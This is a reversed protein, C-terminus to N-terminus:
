SPCLKALDNGDRGSLGVAFRRKLQGSVQSTDLDCDGILWHPSIRVIVLELRLLLRLKQLSRGKSPHAMEIRQFPVLVYQNKTELSCHLALM